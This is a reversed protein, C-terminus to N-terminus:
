TSVLTHVKLIETVADRMAPISWILTNVVATIQFALVVDLVWNILSISTDIRDVLSPVSVEKDPLNRTHCGCRHSCTALTCHHGLSDVPRLHFQTHHTEIICSTVLSLLLISISFVTIYCQYLLPSWFTSSTKMSIGVDSTPDETWILSHWYRTPIGSNGTRLEGTHISGTDGIIHCTCSWVVSIINRKQSM